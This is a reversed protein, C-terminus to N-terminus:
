MAVANCIGIFNDAGDFILMKHYNVASWVRVTVANGDLFTHIIYHEKGVVNKIQM